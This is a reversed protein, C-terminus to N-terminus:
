SRVSDRTLRPIRDRMTEWVQMSRIRRSCPSRPPLPGDRRHLPLHRRLNEDLSRSGAHEALPPGFDFHDVGSSAFSRRSRGTLGSASSRFGALDERNPFLVVAPGARPARAEAAFAKCIERVIELAHLPHGPPLVGRLEPPARSARAHPLGRLEPGPVRTFPFARTLTARGGPRGPLLERARPSSLPSSASCGATSPSAHAHPDPRARTRRRSGPRVPAQLRAVDRVHRPRARATLDRLIDEAVHALIVARLRTARPEASLPLFAQDTGYGGQGYNSGPCGSLRALV